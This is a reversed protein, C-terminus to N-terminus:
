FTALVGLTFGQTTDRGDQTNFADKSTLVQIRYGATFSWHKPLKSGNLTYAVGLEGLRYDADFDVEDSGPTKLWGIGLSGYLSWAGGLPANANMGLVPGAPRYRRGDGKQTVQKYGLTFALGKMVYYGVNVDFENRSGKGGDDFSFDTSPFGSVSGLFDGYRVSLTPMLVLEENASVETIALNTNPDNPDVFYSFTSWDTLWARVGVSVSVERAQASGALCMALAVFWKRYM